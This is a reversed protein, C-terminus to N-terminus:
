GLFYKQVKHPAADPDTIFDKALNYYFEVDNQLGYLKATNYYDNYVMNMVLYWECIKTTVGKRALFDQIASYSWNQGKPVMRRVILEAEDHSISYAIDELTDMLHSYADPQTKKLREVADDLAGMAEHLKEKSDEKGHIAVILDTFKSM